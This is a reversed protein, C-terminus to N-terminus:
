KEGEYLISDALMSIGRIRGLLREIELLFAFTGNNQIRFFISNKYLISPFFFIGKVSIQRFRAAILHNRVSYPSVVSAFSSHINSKHIGFHGLFGAFSNRLSQIFALVAYEPRSKNSIEFFVFSGNIKLVRSAEAIAYKPEPWYKLSRVSYIVDFFNNIIPLKEADGLILYVNNSNRFIQKGKMLMSKSFDIGM